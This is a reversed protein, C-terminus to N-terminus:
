PLARAPRRVLSGGYAQDDTHRKLEALAKELEREWVALRPDDRLYPASPLLSAYLYIDPYDTLLWNSQTNDSLPDITAWYALRANYTKDPVPALRLTQGIIATHSPVGTEGKTAEVDGLQGTAVTDIDGFYTPGDFYLAELRKFDSPLNVTQAKLALAQTRLKRVRPDRKLRAEATQIFTPVVDGLDTRVLWDAIVTKLNTYSDILPM